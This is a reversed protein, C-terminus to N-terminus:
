AGNRVRTFVKPCGKKTSKRLPQYISLILANKLKQTFANLLSAM